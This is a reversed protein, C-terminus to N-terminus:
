GEQRCAFVYAAPGSPGTLDTTCQVNYPGVLSAIASLDGRLTDVRKSLGSIQSQGSDAASAAQSQVTALQHRLETVQAQMSGQWGMSLVLAATAIAVGILAAIYPAWKGWDVPQRRYEHTITAQIPPEPQQQDYPWDDTQM